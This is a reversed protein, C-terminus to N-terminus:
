VVWILFHEVSLHQWIVSTRELQNVLAPYFLEPFLSDFFNPQVQHTRGFVLRQESEIVKQLILLSNQQIFVM